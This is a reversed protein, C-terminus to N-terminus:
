FIRGFGLKCFNVLHRKLLVIKFILILLIVSVFLDFFIYYTFNGIPYNKWVIVIVFGLFQDESILFWDEFSVEAPILLCMLWPVEWFLGQFLFLKYKIVPIHLHYLLRNLNMM